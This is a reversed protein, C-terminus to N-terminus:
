GFQLLKELVDSKMKKTLPDAVNYESLVHGLNKIQGSVYAEHLSTIDILLRKETVSTLKAVTDFISKSDTFIEFPVPLSLIASLDHAVTFCYDFCVTLAYVEAALISRTVRRCKWSSFHIISANGNDECLLVVMGLQSSHDENTASSAAAYGRIVLSSRDLKPFLLSRPHEKVKKVASNLLRVDAATTKSSVVQALKANLYAVDPRTSTAVYALQGRVHAFEESTFHKNSLTKLSHSYEQQSLKFGSNSKSVQAGGFSFPLHEDRPKVDFKSSKSEEEIAFDSCGAGLTDFALTGIIGILESGKKKFFLCLDLVSQTMELNTVHYRKFTQWWYGPSESLGYLPKIAQLLGRPQNIMSLLDPRKPPKVFLERHM